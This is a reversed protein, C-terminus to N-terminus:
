IIEGSPRAVLRMDHDCDRMTVRGESAFALPDDPAPFGKGELYARTMIIAEGVRLGREACLWLMQVAIRRAEQVDALFDTRQM